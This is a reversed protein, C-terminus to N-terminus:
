ILCLLEWDIEGNPLIGKMKAQYILGKETWIGGYIGEKIMEADIPTELGEDSPEILCNNEIKVFVMEQWVIGDFLEEINDAQKIINRINVGRHGGCVLISPEDYISNSQIVGENKYIGDITRIYKM